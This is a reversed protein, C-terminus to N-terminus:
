LTRCGSVESILATLSGLIGGTCGSPARRRCPAATAALGAGVGPAVDRTRASSWCSRAVARTNICLISLNTCLVLPDDIDREIEALAATRRVHARRGPFAGRQVRRRPPCARRAMSAAGSAMRRTTAATATTARHDTTFQVYWSIRLGLSSNKGTLPTSALVGASVQRCYSGSKRSCEVAMMVGSKSAASAWTSPSPLGMARVYQRHCTVDFGKSKYRGADLATPM